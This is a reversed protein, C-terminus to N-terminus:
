EGTAFQRQDPAAFQRAGEGHRGAEDGIRGAAGPGRALQGDAQRTRGAHLGDAARLQRGRRQVPVIAALHQGRRDDADRRVDHEM